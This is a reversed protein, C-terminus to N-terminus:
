RRAGFDFRQRCWVTVPHGARLAPYFRMRLACERAARVLASDASGGTWAAEIVMGEEDVRVELEVSAARGRGGARSGPPLRLEVPARLIPPKLDGDVELAPPAPEPLLSDPLADPLPPASALPGAPHPEPPPPDTRTVRSLWVRTEAPPEVHFRDTLSTDALVRVPLRVPEARTQRERGCGAGIALLALLLGPIVSRGPHRAPYARERALTAM